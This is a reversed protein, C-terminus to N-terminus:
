RLIGFIPSTFWPIPLVRNVIHNFITNQRMGRLGATFPKDGYWLGSFEVINRGYAFAAVKRWYQEGFKRYGAYGGIIGAVAGILGGLGGGTRLGVITGALGGGIVSTNRIGQLLTHLHGIIPEYYPAKRDRIWVKLDPVIVTYFGENEDYVHTVEKVEFVGHMNNYEDYIYVTDYIDVTPDGLVILQGNYMDRLKEALISAIIRIQVPIGYRDSIKKLANAYKKHITEKRKEILKSDPESTSTANIKELEREYKKLYGTIKTMLTGYDTLAADINKEYVVVEKIDEQLIDDDVVLTMSDLKSIYKIWNSLFRMPALRGKVEDVTAPNNSPYFMTVKNAFDEYFGAKINNSIIHHRSDYFHSKTAKKYNDYLLSGYIQKFMSGIFSLPEGRNVREKLLNLIMQSTLHTVGLKENTEDMLRSIGWLRSASWGLSRMISPSRALPINKDYTLYAIMSNLFTKDYNSNTAEQNLIRKAYKSHIVYAGYGIGAVIAALGLTLGTLAIAGATITGTAVLQALMATEGLATATALPYLYRASEKEYSIAKKVTHIDKKYAEVFKEGESKIKNVLHKMFTEEFLNMLDSSKYYGDKPGVYITQRTEGYLNDNYPLVKVIYDPHWLLIEKIVEFASQDEIIWSFTENQTVAAYIKGGMDLYVNDTLADNINLSIPLARNELFRSIVRRSFHSDAFERNVDDFISFAGLKSHININRLVYGIVDGHSKYDEWMSFKIPEHEGLKEGLIAGYDQAVVEISEGINVSVVKGVFVTTLDNPNNSYGLKIVIETGPKLIFDSVYQEMTTDLLSTFGTDPSLEGRLDFGIKEGVPDAEPSLVNSLNSIQLMATTSASKRSRTIKISKVANYSYFDNFNLLKTSDEEVFFLKYTPFSRDMGYSEYKISEELDDLIEKQMEVGKVTVQGFWQGMSETIAGITDGGNAVTILLNKIYELWSKIQEIQVELEAVNDAIYDKINDEVPAVDTGLIGGIVKIVDENGDRLLSLYLEKVELRAALKMYSYVAEVILLNREILERVQWTGFLKDFAKLDIEGRENFLSDIINDTTELVYGMEDSYILSLREDSNKKADGKGEIYRKKVVHLTEKFDRYLDEYKSSSIQFVSLYRDKYVEKAVELLQLGYFTTQDSFDPIIRLHHNGDKGVDHKVMEVNINTDGAFVFAILRGYHGIPNMYSVLLRVVKTDSLLDELKKRYEEKLQEPYDPANIMAFRVHVDKYVIMEDTITNTQPASPNLIDVVITDGDIVEKLVGRLECFQDGSKPKPCLSFINKIDSSTNTDDGTAIEIDVNNFITQLLVLKYGIVQLIYKDLVTQSEEYTSRITSLNRYLYFTPTTAASAPLPYSNPYLEENQSVLTPLNLYPYGCIARIRDKFRKKRDEEIELITNKIVDPLINIETRYIEPFTIYEKIRADLQHRLMSYYMWSKYDKDTLFKKGLLLTRWYFKWPNYTKLIKDIHEQVVSKETM